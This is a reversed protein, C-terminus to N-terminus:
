LVGGPLFQSMAACCLSAPALLALAGGSAV